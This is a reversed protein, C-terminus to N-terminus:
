GGGRGARLFNISEDSFRFVRALENGLELRAFASFSRKFLKLPRVRKNQPIIMGSQFRYVAAARLM